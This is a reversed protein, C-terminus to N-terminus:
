EEECSIESSDESETETLNSGNSSNQSEFSIIKLLIKPEDKKIQKEKKQNKYEENSKKSFSFSTIGIKKKENIEKKEFSFLDLRIRNTKSFESKRKLNISKVYNGCNM